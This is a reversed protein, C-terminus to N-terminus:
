EGEHRAPDHDFAEICSERSMRMNEKPYGHCVDRIPAGSELCTDCLVAVAGNSPLGCVFCGWGKGPVPARVPLCVINRVTPGAKRCACCSGLDIPDDDSM